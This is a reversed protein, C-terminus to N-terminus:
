KNTFDEMWDNIISNEHLNWASILDWSPAQLLWQGTATTFCTEDDDPELKTNTWMFLGLGEVLSSDDVQPTLVPTRLLGRNDYAVKNLSTASREIVLPEGLLLSMGNVTSINQGSVLTNQKKNLEVLALESIAKKADAVNDVKNLEAVRAITASFQNTADTVMQTLRTKLELVAQTQALTASSILALNEEQTPM